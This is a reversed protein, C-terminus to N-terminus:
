ISKAIEMRSLLNKRNCWRLRVLYSSKIAGGKLIFDKCRKLLDGHSRGTRMSVCNIAHMQPVDWAELDPNLISISKSRYDKM